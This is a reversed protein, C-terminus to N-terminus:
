HEGTLHVFLEQLSVPGLELGSAKALAREKENMEDFITVAATPGLRRKNIVRRGITFREVANAPGTITVGREIVADTDDQMLVKGRHLILVQQFLPAAEDILHSSLIFTRPHRMYDALVQDYFYTRSPADLGLHSEDFITIPARAALGLTIGLASRQGRSLDRIRKNVSVQFRDILEGAYDSDWNPRMMAAFEFAERVNESGDVTDVTERILAVQKTLAANEFLPDGNLLVRGQTPKRFAAMISLLTSKGSGNRGILGYIVQPELTFSVDELATADNFRQTVHQVEVTLSM